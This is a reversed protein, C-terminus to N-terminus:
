TRNQTLLPVHCEVGRISSGSDTKKAFLCRVENEEIYIHREPLSQLQASGQSEIEVSWQNYYTSQRCFTVFDQREICPCVVIHDLREPHLFKQSSDAYQESTETMPSGVYDIGLIKTDIKFRSKNPHSSFAYIQSRLFKFYELDEDQCLTPGDSVPIQQLYYPPSVDVIWLKNPNRNVLQPSFDLGLRRFRFKDAGIM